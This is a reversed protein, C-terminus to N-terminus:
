AAGTEGSPRSQCARLLSARELNRALRALDDGAEGEELQRVRGEIDRLLARLRGITTRAAVPKSQRIWARLASRSILVRRRGRPERLHPLEGSVVARRITAFHVGATTAAHLVDLLKEPMETRM